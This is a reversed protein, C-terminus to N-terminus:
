FAPILYSHAAYIHTTDLSSNIIEEKVTWSIPGVTPGSDVRLSGSM